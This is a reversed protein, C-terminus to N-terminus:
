WRIYGPWRFAEAPDAGGLHLTRTRLDAAIRDKAIGAFDAGSLPRGLTLSVPGNMRRRTEHFILALRMPYSLHSAIQFLRSNQGAVFVPLTTVGPMTALRGVFPHWGLDAAAGGLPRNATAVSGAPFIVVVRGQALLEAARRRTAGSLKRAEPTPSFDVPLLYPKLEPVRCLLAHTLIKADGRLRTGLWGLTLGDVIGFPHNAVILLGGRRPVDELPTGALAPRLRLLRMATDFPNEGGSNGAAWDEYLGKLMPQGSLREVARILGRRFLTQGGHAYSFEVEGGAPPAPPDPALPSIDTM